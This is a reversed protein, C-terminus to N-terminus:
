TPLRELQHSWRWCLGLPIAGFVGFSGDILRWYLPIGRMPGCILALPFILVCCMLGWELVWRNRVPDRWPGVYALAIVLHAFALWDYGYALFPYKVDTERLANRVRVIWETLGSYDGPTAADSAGLTRALWDLEARLPFATAGSLVLGVIFAGLVLRYRRLLRAKMVKTDCVAVAFAQVRTRGFM